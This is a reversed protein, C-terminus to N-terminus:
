TRDYLGSSSIEKQTQEANTEFWALIHRNFVIINWQVLSVKINEMLKWHIKFILFNYMCHQFTFQPLTSNLVLLPWSKRAKKIHYYHFHTRITSHLQIFFKSKKKKQVLKILIWNVCVHLVCSIQFDPSFISCVVFTFFLTCWLPHENFILPSM